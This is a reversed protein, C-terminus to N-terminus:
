DFVDYVTRIIHEAKRGTHRVLGMHDLTHLARMFRAQVEERWEESDEGDGEDEDEGTGSGDESQESAQDLKQKGKRVAAQVGAGNTGPKGNAAPGMVGRECRRLHRRQGELVVAFSQFWDFVNVMRGAHRDEDEPDCLAVDLDTGAHEEHPGKGELQMRALCRSWALKYEQFRREYGDPLERWRLPSTPETDIGDGSGSDDPALYICAQTQGEAGM